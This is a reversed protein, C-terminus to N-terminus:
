RLVRGLSELLGRLLRGLLSRRGITGYLVARARELLRWTTSEEVGRRWYAAHALQDHLKAIVQEDGAARRQLEAAYVRENQLEDGLELLRLRVEDLQDIHERLERRATRESTEAQATADLARSLLAQGPDVLVSDGPLTPLEAKSAVAVVYMPSMEEALGWRDDARELIFPRLTAGERAGSDILASGTVTRQAWTALHPFRVRLLGFLEEATLERVHFPNESKGKKSYVTREPTSLILIGDQALVREIEALVQEQEAVHEIVEFAVVAGFSRSEFDSLERADAVRFELNPAEYNLRSHEVSREDVDVGMVSRASDSLLAAGYGEGSALDLVDRGALLQAAFLYRHYHEYVVPPDAAWPVLREGTWEILRPADTVRRATV